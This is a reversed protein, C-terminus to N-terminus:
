VLENEERIFANENFIITGIDSDQEFSLADYGKQKAKLIADNIADITTENNKLASGIYRNPPCRRHILQWFESSESDLIKAEPKALITEIKPGYMKASEPKRAVFTLGKANKFPEDIRRTEGPVTGRYFKRIQAKKYWNM